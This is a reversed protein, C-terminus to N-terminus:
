RAGGVAGREGDGARRGVIPTEKSDSQHNPSGARHSTKASSVGPRVWSSAGVGALPALLVDLSQGAEVPAARWGERAWERRPDFLVTM